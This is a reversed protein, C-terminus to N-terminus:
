AQFKVLLDIDCRLARKMQGPKSGPLFIHAVYVLVTAKASPACRYYERHRASLVPVLLGELWHWAVDLDCGPDRIVMGVTCGFFNAEAEEGTQGSPIILSLKRASCSLVNPQRLAESVIQDLM